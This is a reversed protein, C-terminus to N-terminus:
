FLNASTWVLLCARGGHQFGYVFNANKAKLWWFSYFKVKDLLQPMFCELNKFLINNLKNWVM